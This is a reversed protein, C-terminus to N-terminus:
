RIPTISWAVTADLRRGAIDVPMKKSGTITGMTSPLPEKNLELHFAYDAARTNTKDEKHLRKDECGTTETHSKTAEQGELKRIGAQLDYTKLDASMTLQGQGMIVANFDTVPVTKQTTTSMRETLTGPDEPHSEGYAKCDSTWSRDRKFETTVTLAVPVKNAAEIGMGPQGPALSWMPGPAGPLGSAATAVNLPLSGNWKLSYSTQETSSGGEGRATTPGETQVATITISVTFGNGKEWASGTSGRASTGKPMEGRMAAAAAARMDPPVNAMAAAMPDNASPKASPNASPNGRGRGRGGMAGIDVKQYGAPIAFLSAAQPGEAINSLEMMSGDDDVTKIPFRLRTSVWARTRVGASSTYDWRIAEYGNVTETAGRVCNTNGSGAGCPNTPDTPGTITMSSGPGQGIPMQMYVKESTMLVYQIKAAPDILAIANQGNLTLETRMKAGGFYMTGSSASADSGDKVTVSARFQLPQQRAGLVGALAGAILLRQVLEAPTRM